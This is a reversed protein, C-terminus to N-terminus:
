WTDLVRRTYLATSSWHSSTVVSPSLPICSRPVPCLTPISSCMSCRNPTM